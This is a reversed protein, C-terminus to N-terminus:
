KGQKPDGSEYKMQHPIAPLECAVIQQKTHDKGVTHVKMESNGMEFLPGILLLSIPNVTIVAETTSGELQIAESLEGIVRCLTEALVLSPQFQIAESLEGILRCLTKALVLSTQAKVAQCVM